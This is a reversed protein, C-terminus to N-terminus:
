YFILSTRYTSIEGDDACVNYLSWTTDCRKSNMVLSYVIM